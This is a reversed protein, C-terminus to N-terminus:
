GRENSRKRERDVLTHLHVRRGRTALKEMSLDKHCTPFNQIEAVNGLLRHKSQKEPPNDETADKREENNSEKPTDVMYIMHHPPQGTGQPRHNRNKEQM